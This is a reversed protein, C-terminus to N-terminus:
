YISGGDGFVPTPVGSSTSVSLAFKSFPVQAGFLEKGSTTPISINKTFRYTKGNDCDVLYFVYDMTVNPRSVRGVFAVGDANATGGIRYSSSTNGYMSIDVTSASVCIGTCANLMNVGTYLAYTGAPLGTVVLQFDTTFNWDDITASLTGGSYTYAINYFHAVVPAQVGTTAANSKNPFDLYYYSTGSKWQAWTSLASNTSEWFGKLKGSAKLRATAEASLASATWVSGDYTLTFDPAYATVDDLYVNIVDGNEWGSKLTKTGPALDGVSVNIKVGQPTEPQLTEAKNCSAAAAFVVAAAIFLENKKM